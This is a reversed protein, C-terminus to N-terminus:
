NLIQPVFKQLFRRDDLPITGILFAVSLYVGVETIIVIVLSFKLMLLAVTEMVITSLIIRPVLRLNRFEITGLLHRHIIIFTILTYSSTSVIRAIAAGIGELSPILLLNASINFILSLSLSLPIWRQLDLVLLLRTNSVNVFLFILAWILIQAM